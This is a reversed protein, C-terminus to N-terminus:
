VMGEQFRIDRKTDTSIVYKVAKTNKRPNKEYPVLEGIRKYVIEIDNKMGTGGHRWILFHM